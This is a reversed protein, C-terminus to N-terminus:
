FGLFRLPKQTEKKVSHGQINYSKFDVMKANNYNANINALIM